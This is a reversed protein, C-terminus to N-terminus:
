FPIRRLLFFVKQQCLNLFYDLRVHLTDKCFKTVAKVTLEGTKFTAINDNVDNINITVITIASNGTNIVDPMDKAQIAIIYQSQKERDLSSTMTRIEGLSLVFLSM